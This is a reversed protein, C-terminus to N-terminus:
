SQGSLKADMALVAQLLVTAGAAVHGPEASEIENHSIGGACPVFIMTTPAVAAVYASDHGAGSIINRHAFGAQVAAARVAGVCDADFHVSPSNWICTLDAAVGSSAAVTALRETLKQEMVALVTDDPDRFDVTFFTEGPIVNRSNPRAEILGVTGVANPGHELAIQHVVEIMRATAVLADQRLYMPTSGAHSDVGTVTVEYWRMGQVGTVVGIVKDEAELIPGQEIHLEFHAALPHDGCPEEGIFGIDRLADGFRVGDRDERAYAWDKTFKGAFVGSSLMAPAFRSGEENTWDIVEIPHTTEYGADQLTRLLELGSLVGIIGDFKGGTPQTDLHSGIAIPPLSNDKGPRRAFINGMDDIKVECGAAECAAIFWRRVDADLETLTLRKIGGKPTGGIKATDLISDWLRVPDIALNTALSM